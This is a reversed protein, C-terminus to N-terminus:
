RYEPTTAGLEGGRVATVARANAAAVVSRAGAGFECGAASGAMTASGAVGARQQEGADVFNEREHTGVTAARHADDGEDGVRGRDAVDEEV